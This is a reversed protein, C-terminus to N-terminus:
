ALCIKNKGAKKASYLAADAKAIIADLSTADMGYTAIGFSATIFTKQDPDLNIPASEIAIRIREAVELATMKDTNPLVIVFEEGGYRVGIDSTRINKSIAESVNRMAADGAEHGNTDNFRKFNDIDFMVISLLQNNRDVIALQKDMFAELYRRNYLGTLPDILALKKNTELLRMNNIVPSLLAIFSD